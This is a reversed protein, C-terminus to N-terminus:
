RTENLAELINICERAEKVDHVRLIDAGKLLAITNLSTTGNLAHEPDTGLLKWIMSKRSIGVLIPKDFTKFEELRNLIEYNGSLTKGFGFGPDLIIDHHGLTEIENIKSKFFDKLEGMLDAYQPNDQMNKPSGKKHMAIYRIKKEAIFPIMEPDDEGASVDNVILAGSEVCAKAVEKRFTDISIITGPWRKLIAECVPATRRAEVSPAVLEAGPRTSQGGIDIIDAGESLLKECQNLALDITHYKGGDFFSDDTTNLIGMVLPRAIINQHGKLNTEQPKFDSLM